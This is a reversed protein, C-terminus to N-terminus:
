GAGASLGIKVEGILPSSILDSVATAGMSVVAAVVQEPVEKPFGAERVGEAIAEIVQTKLRQQKLEEHKIQAEM